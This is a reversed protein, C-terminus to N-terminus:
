AADRSSNSKITGPGRHGGLPLTHPVFPNPNQNKTKQKKSCHPFSAKNYRKVVGPHGESAHPLCLEWGMKGAAGVSGRAAPTWRGSVTRAFAPAGLFHCTGCATNGRCRQTGTPGPGAGQRYCSSLSHEAFQIQQSRRNQSCTNSKSSDSCSIFSMRPRSLFKRIHLSGM